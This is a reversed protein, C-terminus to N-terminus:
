IIIIIIIVLLSVLSWIAFLTTLELSSTRIPISISVFSMPDIGLLVPLADVNVGINVGIFTGDIIIDDILCRFIDTTKLFIEQISRAFVDNVAAIQAV